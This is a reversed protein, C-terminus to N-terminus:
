HPELSPDPMANRLFAEYRVLIHFFSRCRKSHIHFFPQKANKANRLGMGSKCGASILGLCVSVATQLRAAESSMDWTIAFYSVQLWLQVCNELVVKALGSFFITYVIKKLDGDNTAHVVAAFGAADAASSLRDEHTSRIVSAMAQQAMAAAAFCTLALGWFHATAVVGALAPFISELFTAAFTPTVIDDNIYAQVLFVGDTFYDAHELVSFVLFAYGSPKTELQRLIQVEVLKSRLLLPAYIGYALLPAGQGSKTLPLTALPILPLLLMLRAERRVTRVIADKSAIHAYGALEAPSANFDSSLPATEGNWGTCCGFCCGVIGVSCCCFALSLIAIGVWGIRLQRTWGGILGYLKKKLSHEKQRIDSLRKQEQEKQKEIKRLRKQVKAEELKLQSLQHKQSKVRASLKHTKNGTRRFSSTVNLTSSDVLQRIAQYSERAREREGKNHGPKSELTAKWDTPTPSTDQPPVFAICAFVALVALVMVTLLLRSANRESARLSWSGEPRVTEQFHPWSRGCPAEVQCKPVCLQEAFLHPVNDAAPVLRSQTGTPLVCTARCVSGTAKGTISGPGGRRTRCLWFCGGIPGNSLLM